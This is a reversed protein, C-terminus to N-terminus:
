YTMLPSGSCHVDTADPFRQRPSLNTIGVAEVDRNHISKRKQSDTNMKEESSVEPIPSLFEAEENMCIMAQAEAVASGDNDTAYLIKQVAAVVPLGELGPCQCLIEIDRLKGFYFDREKELSDVSLKLDTIQEEYTSVVPPARSAKVSQSSCPNASSSLLNRRAAHSQAKPAATSTKSWTQSAPGKKGAEKGGKSADRREIPNYNVLGGNASDCYRKMWQMFELNDLPRGKVLKSVEIHKTIKLKNFVDQLVKYNQIMDYENKADFNVKHMPVMGPHVADLLQCHVAGSCAEEVKSLNLQLTSNIWTLIESRGVFYASDMMGIKTAMESQRPFDEPKTQNAASPQSKKRIENHLRTSPYPNEVIQAKVSLLGAEGQNCDYLFASSASPPTPIKELVQLAEKMNPRKHPIPSACSYGLKFCALLAEEKGEVDARISVDAMRLARAKDEAALGNNGQGTEDVIIVKGTLLELLIVGFSYVDWKPNPKISRLSEPAHYPSLGGISSPSPSPSPSPGTSSFDQFSDRSATSRKSGFNRASGGAKSSSDGTILKELGFDGLKPEMDLDLLINNPKLNGHVHKKDHLFSLGRAVGRVIKLRSEWPLHCPSSGGAKRYRANALSGNTIFDYIILKEEPGWYFGRIRVLNPHVLRSIIRVQNDFDRFRDVQTEGIRRVALSTGDELVAKYVISSGTAGLIYASAQLLSELELKKEGDVSVLTGIKGNSNSSSQDPQLGVASKSDLEYTDSTSSDSDDDENESKKRLCSWRTFGRSESSSSSSTSDDKTMRVDNLIETEIKKKKRRQIFCYVYFFVVFLIAVGTVDGLVIGVITGTRLRNSNSQGKEDDPASNAHSSTVTNPIVALAPPSTPASSNVLPSSSPTPCPNVTPRGCLDSNGSFFNSKQNFFVTSHPIEGTLNNFSLDLTANGPIEVSFEQPISGSLRNYSVNFYRLSKGGFHPPLSGNILNSSLELVQVSDFGSPLGGTFYNNSLSLHTLNQLSTLNLPLNGTFANDSFNLM